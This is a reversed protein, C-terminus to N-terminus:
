ETKNLHEQKLKSFVVSDVFVGDIFYHERLVAEKTFGNKELLRISAINDKGTFAEIRHLNMTTFGYDILAELAENMLGKQRFNVDSILYGLESRHHLFFWNHFGGRGITKQTEKDVFLFQLISRNYSTHGLDSKRKESSYEEDSNFGFLQKVEDKSYKGFILKLDHPTLKKLILRKTILTELEM